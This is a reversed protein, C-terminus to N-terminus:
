GLSEFKGRAEAVVEADCASPADGSGGDETAVKIAFDKTAGAGGSDDPVTAVAFGSDTKGAPFEARARTVGTRRPVTQDSPEPAAGGHHAIFLEARFSAPPNSGDGGQTWDCSLDLTVSASGGPALRLTAVTATTALDDTLSAVRGISAKAGNLSTMRPVSGESAFAVARNSATTIAIGGSADIALRDSPASGSTADQRIKVFGNQAAGATIVVGGAGAGSDSEAVFLVSEKARVRVVGGDSTAEVAVNDAVATVNEADITLSHGSDKGIFTAGHVSAGGAVYLAGAGSADGDEDSLIKAKAKVFASKEVALGGALRVSADVDSTSADTITADTANAM